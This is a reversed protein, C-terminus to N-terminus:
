VLREFANMYILIAKKTEKIDIHENAEHATSVSGPFGAGFAVTNDFARAYTAGGIKLPKADVDKTVDIYSGMLAQVLESDEEVYLSEISSSVEARLGYEAALDVVIDAVENLKFSVPYRIDVSVIQNSHDVFSKGVNFTIKGSVEDEFKDLLGKEYLQTVVYELCTESGSDVLAKCLLYIANVGKDPTSAHASKGLVRVIEDNLEYEIGLKELSAILGDRVKTEAHAAVANFSDGGVLVREEELPANILMQLLGKEVHVLPFDADPAFAMVPLEEHKKYADMCQWSREEDSGFIFRVRKSLVHGEDLLYKLAHMAMLTPGKDDSTGRGFLKGDREDLIFPDSIWMSEDGASVVDIHCLVGVLEGSGIEAYGYYGKPDIYTSFGMEEAIKLMEELSRQIESGFPLSDESYVSKHAIMRSLHDKFEGFRSEVVIERTM